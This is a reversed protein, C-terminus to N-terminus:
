EVYAHLQHEERAGNKLYHLIRIKNLGKQLSIYDTTFSTAATKFVTASFGNSENRIESETIETNRKCVSGNLRLQKADKSLRIESDPRCDLHVEVAERSIEWAVPGATHSAPVRQDSDVPSRAPVPFPRRTKSLAQKRIRLFARSYALEEPPTLPKLLTFVVFVGTVVVLVSTWIIMHRQLLPNL